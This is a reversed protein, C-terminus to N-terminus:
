FLDATRDGRGIKDRGSENEGIEVREFAGNRVEDLREGVIVRVAGLVEFAEGFQAFFRFRDGVGFAGGRQGGVKGRELFFREERVGVEIEGREEGDAAVGALETEGFIVVAVGDKRRGAVAVRENADVDSGAFFGVNVNRFVALEDAVEFEM